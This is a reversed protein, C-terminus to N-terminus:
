NRVRPETGIALSMVTLVPETLGAIFSPLLMFLGEAISLRGSQKQDM